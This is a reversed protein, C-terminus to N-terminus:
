ASIRARARFADATEVTTPAVHWSRVWGVYDDDLRVLYWDGDSKLIELTDGYVSQSVLESPHNAARRIDAVSSTTLLWQSTEVTPDPLLRYVVTLGDPPTLAASVKDLLEAHTAECVVTAGDPPLARIDAYALRADLGRKRRTEDIGERLKAIFEIADM